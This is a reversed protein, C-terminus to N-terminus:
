VALRWVYMRRPPQRRVREDSMGPVGGCLETHCLRRPTGHASKTKTVPLIGGCVTGLYRAEGWRGTEYLVVYISHKHVDLDVYMIQM